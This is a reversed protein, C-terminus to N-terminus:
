IKLIQQKKYNATIMQVQIATGGIHDSDGSPKFNCSVISGM